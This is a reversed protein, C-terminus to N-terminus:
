SKRPGQYPSPCVWRPATAVLADMACRASLFVVVTGRREGYNDMTRAHGDLTEFSVPGAAAGIPLAQASMAGIFVISVWISGRM